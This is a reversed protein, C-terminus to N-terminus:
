DVGSRDLMFYLQPAKEHPVRLTGLRKKVTALVTKGGGGIEADQYRFLTAAFAGLGFAHIDELSGTEKVLQM